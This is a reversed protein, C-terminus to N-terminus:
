HNRQVLYTVSMQCELAAAEEEYLVLNVPGREMQGKNVVGTTAPEM